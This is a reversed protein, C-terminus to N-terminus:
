QIVEDATALLTEPVVIGLARATTLNIVLEFKTSQVVPLDGPKEGKLILGVYIGAQRQADRVNSGYSMLGGAEVFERTFHITPLTHRAALTAIQVRRNSLFVNPAIVLADARRQVMSAFAADIERDTSARFVEIQRGVTSAAAQVDETLSALNTTNGPNVLLAFRAATPVLEHLLGLRKATLENNLFSIGTVNGGPRNFSAVLGQQVPNGGVIFVIPITTTAAKAASVANANTVIVTVQRHVLEAALASLRDYRDDAYRYEIEANRGEIFGMESLGKLFTPVLGKSADAASGTYLVGIVPGKSQQARAVVPCAVASGIGAVFERRGIM